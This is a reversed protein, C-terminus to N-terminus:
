GEAGYDGVYRVMDSELEARTAYHPGIAHVKGPEDDDDCFWRWLGAKVKAYRLGQWRTKHLTLASADIM